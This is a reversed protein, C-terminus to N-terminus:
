PSILTQRTKNRNGLHAIEEDEQKVRDDFFRDRM